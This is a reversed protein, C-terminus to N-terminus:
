DRRSLFKTLEYKDGTKFKNILYFIISAVVVAGLVYLPFRHTVLAVVSIAFGILSRFILSIVAIIVLTTPIM